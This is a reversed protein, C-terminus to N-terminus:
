IETSATLQRLQDLVRQSQTTIQTQEPPNSYTVSTDVINNIENLMLEIQRNCEDSNATTSRANLLEQRVSNLEERLRDIEAKAFEFKATATAVEAKLDGNRETLDRLQNELRNMDDRARRVEEDAVRIADQNGRTRADAAAATAAALGETAAQLAAATGRETDTSNSSQQVTQAITRAMELRTKEENFDRIRNKYYDIKANVETSLKSLETMVTDHSKKLNDYADKWKSSILNDKIKTIIQNKLQQNGGTQILEVMDIKNKYEQIKQSYLARKSANLETAALSQYKTLKHLNKNFDGNQYINM